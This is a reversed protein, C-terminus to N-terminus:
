AVNGLIVIAFDQPGMPVSSAIVRVKWNGPSASPEHVVEVNNKSDFVPTGGAPQNGLYIKGSPSTVLLNLNNVLNSGPYDSYVLVIRLTGGGTAVQFVKEWSRGTTLGTSVDNFVAKGPSNPSLVADLNVRGFGQSNDMVAGAPGTGRLRTVGAILTAKLLAASPKAIRVKKRIFERILGVAGAVLPTAMSTGGMHFYKKSPPYAAWAFNNPALLTSRTSLIFTGPAVVDPKTRNDLTPGRSSFAAVQDPNNAMQDKSIPLSPYDRPWWDGYTSTFGPRQNESAGVTICNKATGPATVSGPNIAGNGDLDSGDNGAAFLVCFDKNNWVFQDVQRSTNGYVGADGGGWSNTHIRAGNDYAFQFLSQLNDPIGWLGYRGYKRLDAPSRWQTQQEVAQFVLQSKYALGRILPSGPLQAAVAGSGLASGAVHTGHGSDLDSAGDDARPNFVYSNLSAPLPYSRIAIVRGAFDEHVTAGDGTDLGTDCIGIIEGEGSLGAGPNGVSANSNMIGAAVNNCTRNVVAERIRRVGHIASLAAVQKAQQKPTGKTRVTLLAAKLDKGLLEVGLDSLAKAAARAEPPGFFAVSLVNAIGSRRPLKKLEDSAGSSLSQIVSSAV